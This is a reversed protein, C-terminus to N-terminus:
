NPPLNRDEDDDDDDDGRGGDGGLRSPPFQKVSMVIVWRTKDSRQKRTEFLTLVEPPPLPRNDNDYRTPRPGRTVRQFDPPARAFAVVCNIRSRGVAGRQDLGAKRENSKTNQTVRSDIVVGSSVLACVKMKHNTEFLQYGSCQLYILRKRRQSRIFYRELLEMLPEDFCSRDM